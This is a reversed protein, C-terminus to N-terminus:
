FERIFSEGKLIHFLHQLLRIMLIWIFTLIIGLLNMMMWYQTYSIAQSLKEQFRKKDGNYANQPLMLQKVCTHAIPLDNDDSSFEVEILFKKDNPL